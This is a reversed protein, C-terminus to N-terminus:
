DRFDAASSRSPIAALVFVLAACAVGNFYSLPENGAAAFTWLLLWLAVFANLWRMPPASMSLLAVISILLGPLWASLRSDGDHAWVVVSCQLWVGILLNGIRPWPVGSVARAVASSNRAESVKSLTRDEV